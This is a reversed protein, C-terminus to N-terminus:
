VMEILTEFEDIEICRNCKVINSGIDNVCTCPRKRLHDFMVEFADMKGDMYGEDYLESEAMGTQEPSIM